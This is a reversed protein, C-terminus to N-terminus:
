TSMFCQHGESCSGLPVIEKAIDLAKEEPIGAKILKDRFALIFMAMDEAKIQLENREEM